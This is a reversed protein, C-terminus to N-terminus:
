SGLLEVYREVNILEGRTIAATQEFHKQVAVRDKGSALPELFRRMQETMRLRARLHARLEKAARGDTKGRTRLDALHAEERQWVRKRLDRAAAPDSDELEMATQIDIASAPDLVVSEVSGWAFACGLIGLLAAEGVLWFSGMHFLVAAISLSLLAHAFHKLM